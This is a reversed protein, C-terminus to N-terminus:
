KEETEKINLILSNSRTYLIFRLTLKFERYERFIKQENCCINGSLQRGAAQGRSGSRHLPHYFSKLHKKKIVGM